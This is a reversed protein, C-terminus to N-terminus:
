PLPIGDPIRCVGKTKKSKRRFDQYLVEDQPLIMGRYWSQLNLGVGFMGIECIRICCLVEDQPLIMGLYWSQLNLGVGFM